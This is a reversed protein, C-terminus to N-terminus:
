FFNIFFPPIKGLMWFGRILRMWLTATRWACHDLSLKTASRSRIVSFVSVGATLQLFCQSAEQDQGEKREELSM